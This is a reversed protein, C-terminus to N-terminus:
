HILIALTYGCEESAKSLDLSLDQNNSKITSM